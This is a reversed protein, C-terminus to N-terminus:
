VEVCWYPPLIGFTGVSPSVCREVYLLGSVLRESMGVSLSAHPTSEHEKDGVSMHSQILCCALVQTIVVIKVRILARGLRRSM